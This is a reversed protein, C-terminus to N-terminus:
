ILRITYVLHSSIFILNHIVFFSVKPRNEFAASVRKDTSDVAWTRSLATLKTIGYQSLFFVLFVSVGIAGPGRLEWIIWTFAVLVSLLGAVWMHLYQGFDLIRASDNSFMNM